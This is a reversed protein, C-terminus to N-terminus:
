SGTLWKLFERSDMAGWTQKAITGDDKLVAMMPLPDAGYRMALEVDGDVDIKVPTFKRLVTEVEPDAWTTHKMEECPGCWTAGFYALVPRGSTRAEERAQAFDTRWPVIEKPRYVKSITTVAAVALLIIFIGRLPKFASSHTPPPPAPPTTPQSETVISVV